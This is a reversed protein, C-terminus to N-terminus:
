FNTMRISKSVVSCVLILNKRQLSAPLTRLDAFMGQSMGLSLVSEGWVKLNIKGNLFDPNNSVDLSTWKGYFNLENMLKELEYIDKWAFSSRMLLFGVYNVRLFFTVARVTRRRQFFKLACHFSGFLLRSCCMEIESLRCVLWAVFSFFCVFLCVCIHIHKQPLRICKM